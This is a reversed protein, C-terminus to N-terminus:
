DNEIDDNADNRVFGADHLQFVDRSIAKHDVSTVKWLQTKKQDDWILLPIHKQTSWCIHHSVQQQQLQYWQCASLPKEASPAQAVTLKYDGHPHKLGHSLDFWDNFSGLHMLNNRNIRTSIRKQYDVVIMQYTSLQNKNRIIYTDIADDTRRRLHLQGDRWVQLTHNKGDGSNFNAKYYFSKPEASANFIDDFKLTKPTIAIAQQAFSCLLAISLVPNLKNVHQKQMILTDILKAM